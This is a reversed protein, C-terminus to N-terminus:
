VQEMYAIALEVLDLGWPDCAEIGGVGSALATALDAVPLSALDIAIGAYVGDSLLLSSDLSPVRVAAFDGLTNGFLFVGQRGVASEDGATTTLTETWRAIIDLEVCVASSVNEVLSRWAFAFAWLDSESTDSKLNLECTAEAGDNDRFLLRVHYTRQVLL